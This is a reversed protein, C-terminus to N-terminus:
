KKEAKEVEAQHNKLRYLEVKRRHRREAAKSWSRAWSGLLASMPFVLWWNHGIFNFFPDM